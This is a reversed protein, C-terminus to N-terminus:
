QVRQHNVFSISLKSGGGGGNVLLTPHEFGLATRINQCVDLRDISMNSGKTTKLGFHKSESPWILLVDPHRAHKCSSVGVLALVVVWRSQVIEESKWNWQIRTGRILNSKNWTTM